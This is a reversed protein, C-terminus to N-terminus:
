LSIKFYEIDEITTPGPINLKNCITINYKNIGSRITKLLDKILEKKCFTLMKGTYNKLEISYDSETESVSFYWDGTEEDQFFKIHDFEKANTMKIAASNFNFSGTNHFFSLIASKRIDEKKGIYEKLKM